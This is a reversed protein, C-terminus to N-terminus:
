VHARGIKVLKQYEEYQHQLPSKYYLLTGERGILYYSAEQPLTLNKNDLEFSSFMMDIALFSGTSPIAKCMTVVPLGTVVDTYASSVYIEGEAEMAGQYYDTVSVDYDSM